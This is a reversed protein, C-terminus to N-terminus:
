HGVKALHEKAESCPQHMRALYSTTCISDTSMGQYTLTEPRHRLQYRVQKAHLPDPTRTGTAGCSFPRRRAAKKKHIIIPARPGGSRTHTSPNNTPRPTACYPVRRM